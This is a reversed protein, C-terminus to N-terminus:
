TQSDAKRSCDAPVQKTKDEALIIGVAQAVLFTWTCTVSKWDDPFDVIAGPSPNSQTEWLPNERRHSVEPLCRRSFVDSGKTRGSGKSQWLFRVSGLSIGDGTHKTNGMGCACCPSRRSPLLRAQHITPTALLFQYPFSLSLILLCHFFSWSTYFHTRPRCRMQCPVLNLLSCSLAPTVVYIITSAKISQQILIHFTLQSLIFVPKSVFTQQTLNM